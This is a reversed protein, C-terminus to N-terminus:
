WWMYVCVFRLDILIGEGVVEFFAEDEVDVTNFTEVELVETGFNWVVTVERTRQRGSLLDPKLM